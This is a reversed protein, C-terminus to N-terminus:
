DEGINEIVSDDKLINHISNIFREANKGLDNNKPHESEIYNLTDWSYDDNREKKFNNFIAYPVQENDKIFDFEEHAGLRVLIKKVESITNDRPTIEIAKFLLPVIAKKSANHNYETGIIRNDSTRCIQNTHMKKSLMILSNSDLYNIANLEYILYGKKIENCDFLTDALQILRRDNPHKPVIKEYIARAEDVKGIKSLAHAKYGDIFTDNAPINISTVSDIINILGNFNDDVLYTNFITQLRDHEQDYIRREKSRETFKPLGNEDNEIFFFDETLKRAENRLEQNGVGVQILTDIYKILVDQNRPFRNKASKMIQLAYTPFGMMQCLNSIYMFSAESVYSNNNNLRKVTTIFANEDWKLMCDELEDIIGKGTQLHMDEALDFDIAIESTMKSANRKENLKTSDAEKLVSEARKKIKENVESMETELKYPIYNVGALDSLEKTTGVKVIFVRGRGKLGYAIGTEFVVNDRAIKKRSKLEDSEDWLFVYFDFSPLKNLLAEITIETVEFLETWKTAIAWSNLENCLKELLKESNKCAGIFVSPKGLKEM